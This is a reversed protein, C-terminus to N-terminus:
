KPKLGCNFAAGITNLHNTAEAKAEPSVNQSHAIDYMNDVFADVKTQFEGASFKESYTGTVPLLEANTPKYGAAQLNPSQVAEKIANELLEYNRADTRREERYPSIDTYTSGRDSSSSRGHNNSRPDLAAGASKWFGMQIECTSLALNPVATTDAKKWAERLTRSIEYRWDGFINEDSM